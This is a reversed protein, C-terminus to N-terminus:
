HGADDAVLGIDSYRGRDSADFYRFSLVPPAGPSIFQPPSLRDSPSETMGVIRGSQTTTDILDTLTPPAFLLFCAAVFRIMQM